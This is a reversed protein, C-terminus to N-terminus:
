VFLTTIQITICSALTSKQVSLRCEGTQRGFPQKTARRGPQNRPWECGAPRPCVFLCVIAYGFEHSNAAGIATPASSVPEAAALEPHRRNGLRRVGELPGGLTKDRCPM